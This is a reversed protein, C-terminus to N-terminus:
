GSSIRTQYSRFLYGNTARGFEAFERKKGVTITDTANQITFSVNKLGPYSPCSKLIFVNLDDNRM